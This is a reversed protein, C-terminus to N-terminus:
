ENYGLWRIGAICACFGPFTEWVFNFFRCFGPSSCHVFILLATVDEYDIVAIRVPLDAAIQVIPSVERPYLLQLCPVFAVPLVGLVDCRLHQADNFPVCALVRRKLHIDLRQLLKAAAM